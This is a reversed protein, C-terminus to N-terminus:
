PLVGYVITHVDSIAADVKDFNGNSSELGDWIVKEKLVFLVTNFPMDDWHMSIMEHKKWIDPFLDMILPDLSAETLPQSGGAPVTDSTWHTGNLDRFSLQELPVDLDNYVTYNEVRVGRRQPIKHWSMIPHVQRMKSLDEWRRGDTNEKLVALSDRNPRIPLLRTHAVLSETELDSSNVFYLREKRLLLESSRADWIAFEVSQGREATMSQWNILLVVLTCGTAILPTRWVWNLRSGKMFMNIPGIVMSFLFLLLLILEDPVLEFLGLSKIVSKLSYEYGTFFPHESESGATVVSNQQKFGAFFGTQNSWPNLLLALAEHVSSSEEVLTVQGRGMRYTEIMTSSPAKFEAVQSFQRRQEISYGLELDKLANTITASNLPLVEEGVLSMVFRDDIFNKWSKRIRFNPTGVVVLHGGFQVWDRIAEEQLSTIPRENAFWVVSKVGMYAVFDTPLWETESMQVFDADDRHSQTAIMWEPYRERSQPSDIFLVKSNDTVESTTSMSTVTQLNMQGDNFVICQLTEYDSAGQIPIVASGKLVSEVLWESEYLVDGYLDCRIRILHTKGDVSRVEWVLPTPAIEFSARALCFSSVKQRNIKGVNQNPVLSKGFWLHLRLHM